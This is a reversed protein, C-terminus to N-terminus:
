CCVVSVRAPVSQARCKPEAFARPCRGATRDCPRRRSKGSRNRLETNSETRRDAVRRGINALAARPGAVTGCGRLPGPVVKSGRNRTDTEWEYLGGGLPTGGFRCPQLKYRRTSGREFRLAIGNQYTLHPP